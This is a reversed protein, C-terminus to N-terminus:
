TKARSCRRSSRWLLTPAQFSASTIPGLLRRATSCPMFSFRRPAPHLNIAGQFVIIEDFIDPRNMPGSIRFGSFAVRADPALKGALVGLDFYSNDPTLTRVNGNEIVNVEVPTKFLWGSPLMQLEFTSGEGRWITRERRFRIQRYQDYDVNEAGQPVAEQPAVYAKAALDRAASQVIDRVPPPSTQAQAFGTQAPMAIFAALATVVILTTKGPL